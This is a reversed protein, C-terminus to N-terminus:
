KDPAMGQVRFNVLVAATLCVILATKSEHGLHRVAIGYAIGFPIAILGARMYWFYIRKILNLEKRWDFTM